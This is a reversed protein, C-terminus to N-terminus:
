VSTPQSQLLLRPRSPRASWLRHRNNSWLADSAHRASAFTLRRSAHLPPCLTSCSVRFGYIKQYKLTARQRPCSAATTPPLPPTSLQQSPSIPPYRRFPLSPRRARLSLFDGPQVFNYLIFFSFTPSVLALAAVIVLPLWRARLVPGVFRQALRWVKRGAQELVM